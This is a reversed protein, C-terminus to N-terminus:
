AYYLSPRRFTQGIIPENEHEEDNEKESTSNPLQYSRQEQLELDSREEGAILRVGSDDTEAIRKAFAKNKRYQVAAQFIFSLLLILFGGLISIIFSPYTAQDQFCQTSTREALGIYIMTDYIQGLVTECYTHIAYQSVAALQWSALVFAVVYMEM